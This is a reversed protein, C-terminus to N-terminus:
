GSIDSFDLKMRKKSVIPAKKISEPETDTEDELPDNTTNEENRVDPIACFVFNSETAEPEPKRDLLSYYINSRIKFYVESRKFRAYFADFDKVKGKLLRAVNTKFQYDSKTAAERLEALHNEWLYRYLTKGDLSPILIFM